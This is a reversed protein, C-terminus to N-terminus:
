HGLTSLCLLCLGTRVQHKIDGFSDIAYRVKQPTIFAVRPDEINVVEDLPNDVYTSPNTFKNLKGLGEQTHPPPQQVEENNVIGDDTSTTTM